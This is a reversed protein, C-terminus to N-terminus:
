FSTGEFVVGYFVFMQNEHVVKKEKEEGLVFSSIFM